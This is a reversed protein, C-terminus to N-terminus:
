EAKMEGIRDVYAVAAPRSKIYDAVPTRMPWKALPALLGYASVDAMCPRDGVLCASGGM